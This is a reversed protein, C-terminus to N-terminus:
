SNGLNPVIVCYFLQLERSFFLIFLVDNFQPNFALLNRLNDTHVIVLSQHLNRQKQEQKKM